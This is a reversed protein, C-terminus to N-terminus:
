IFEIRSQVARGSHKKEHDLLWRKKALGGAYGTLSGDAGIVRHCPIVIAVKNMGNASAVARIAEPKGLLHAQQKYSRTEGYPIGKLMEWVAKQFETGPIDLPISFDKRTGDFYELIEEEIQILFPNKESLIVADLRKALDKFMSEPTKSNTFQLQSVGKKTACAFMCGLPTKFTSVSIVNKHKM